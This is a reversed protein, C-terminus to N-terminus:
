VELNNNSISSNSFTLINNSDISANNSLLINNSDVSAGSGEAIVQKLYYVNVVTGSTPQRDFYLTIKGSTSKAAYRGNYASLDALCPEVFTDSDIGAVAKEVKYGNAYVTSDQVPSSVTIETRCLCIEQLADYIGGSTVPNVSSETPTNDVTIGYGTLTSPKGTLDDWSTVFSQLAQYIAKNQVPNESSSSLASDVVTKNAGTEIGSLKNKEATTYDNTSLGKGNVKDVKATDSPHVHDARAYKASSGVAATGDMAPTSSSPTPADTIGYGALTTPKNLIAADGSSADWDPNVNAEAGAEIGNLKTKDAASMLGDASETATNSPIEMNMASLADTIADRVEEGRAALEILGIYQSINAM